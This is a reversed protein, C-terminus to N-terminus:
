VDRALAYMGMAMKPIIRSIDSRLEKNMASTARDEVLRKEIYTGIDNPTPEITVPIAEEPLYDEVETSIQPRGTLFLRTNPCERVIRRLSNWLEARHNAPFEDLADVCIFGRKLSLLRKILMDLIEPLRVDGDVQGKAREFAGRVEVPIEALVGVVQRLVSGLVTSASQVNRTNFDCYVYAVAVGDGNIGNIEGFLRDIVLSSPQKKASCRTPPSHRNVGLIRRALEPIDM